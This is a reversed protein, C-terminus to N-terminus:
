NEEEGSLCFNNPSGNGIGALRADAPKLTAECGAFPTILVVIVVANARGAGVKGSGPHEEADDEYM